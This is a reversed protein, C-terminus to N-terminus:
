CDETGLLKPKLTSAQLEPELVTASVPEPCPSPAGGGSDGAGLSTLYGDTAIALTDITGETIAM